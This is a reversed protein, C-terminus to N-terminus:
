GDRSPSRDGAGGAVPGQGTSRRCSDLARRADRLEALARARDGRTLLARAAALHERYAPCPDSSTSGALGLAPSLALVVVALARM